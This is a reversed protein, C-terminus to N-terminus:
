CRNIEALAGYRIAVSTFCYAPHSTSMLQNTFCLDQSTALREYGFGHKPSAVRKLACLWVFLLNIM